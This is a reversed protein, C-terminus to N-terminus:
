VVTHLVSIFGGCQSLVGTRAPQSCRLNRIMEECFGNNQCKPTAQRHALLAPPSSGPIWKATERALSLCFFALATSITIHFAHCIQLCRQPPMTTHHVDSSHLCTRWSQILKITLGGRNLSFLCNTPIRSCNTWCNMKVLTSCSIDEFAVTRSHISKCYILRFTIYECKEYGHM